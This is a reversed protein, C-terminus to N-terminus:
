RVVVVPEDGSDPLSYVQGAFEGRWAYVTVLSGQGNRGPPTSWALRDADLSFGPLAAAGSLLVAGLSGNDEVAVLAIHGAGPTAPDAAWVGLRRGAPDFRVEFANATGATNRPLPRPRADAQPDIVDKWGAVVLEGAAPEWSRADDSWRLTGAWYVAVRGTPDVVPRWVDNRAIETTSGTGPEVLLSRAVVTAPDADAEPVAGQGDTGSEERFRAGSALITNGLWGSFVSGHDSTLREAHREGVRWAYLDPGHSGDVPRASFAVWLGDASYAPLTGVLIVDEAIARIAEATPAPTPPPLTPLPTALEPTPAPTGPAPSGDLTPSPIPDPTPPPTRPPGSPIATAETPIPSVPAPTAVTVPSVSPVPSDAPPSAPEGTAAPSQVPTSTPVSSPSPEPSTVAPWPIVAMAYVKNQGVVVAPNGDRPLVVSTPRMQLAALDTASGDLTGCASADVGPCVRDVPSSSIVYSGDATKRVWAVPQTDVTLPTPRPALSADPAQSPDPAGMPLARPLVLIAVLAAAALGALAPGPRLPSGGHGARMTGGVFHRIGRRSTARRLEDDLAVSVRAALDRPIPPAVDRLGRLITADAGFGDVTARCRDCVALHAELWTTDAPGLPALLADSALDTAREHPDNLRDPHGSARRLGSM